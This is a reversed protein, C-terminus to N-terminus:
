TFFMWKKLFIEVKECQSIVNRVQELTDYDNEFYGTVFLMKLFNKCVVHEESPLVNVDTYTM